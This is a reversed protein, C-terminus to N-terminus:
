RGRVSKYIEWNIKAEEESINPIADMSEHLEKLRQEPTKNYFGTNIRQQEIKARLITGKNLMFNDETIAYPFDVGHGCCANSAGFVEGLCYDYGCETSMHGCRTCPKSDDAFTDDEIYRWEIGTYYIPNGRMHSTIM